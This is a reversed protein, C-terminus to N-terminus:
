QQLHCKQISQFIRMDTENKIDGQSCRKLFSQVYYNLFKEQQLIALQMEYHSINQSYQFQDFNSNISSLNLELFNSSCGLLQLAALQDKSLLMTIAKKLFIIDKVFNFINTDKRIQYEIKQLQFGKLDLMQKKLKQIDKKILKSTNADQIYQLNQVLNLQECDNQKIDNNKFQFVSQNNQQPSPYNKLSNIQSACNSQIEKQLNGQRYNVSEVIDLNDFNTEQECINKPTQLNTIKKLSNSTALLNEINQCINNKQQYKEKYSKYKNLNMIHVQHSNLKQLNAKTDYEDGQSQGEQSQQDERKSQIQQQQQQQKIFYNQDKLLKLYNQQYISKLFLILFDNNISNKSFLRGFIGVFMLLTFISSVLAFVQPLTPYQIQIHQVIEDIMIIAQSYSGAGTEELAYNKNYSQDQQTYQIPSSFHQGTQIILGQKVSTNQNQIKLQTLIQQNAITYVYANRYNVEVQQTATNYQSTFLKFRLISNIGNIMQDIETQSACNSPISTKLQDIDLCGYTMIQITSKANQRSNLFLTQNYLSTFDLCKFGLLNPDTCEVVNLPLFYNQTDTNLQFFALYVLYTKNPSLQITSDVEFRFGVFESNLQTEIYDQSILSQTRFIPDIQNTAYQQIIYIFYSLTTVLVAFSLITGLLTGRKNQYNGTNFSFPTSFLDLKSFIM